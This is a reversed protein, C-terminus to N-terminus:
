QSIACSVLWKGIFAARVELGSVNCDVRARFGEEHNGAWALRVDSFALKERRTPYQAKFVAEKASFALLTGLQADTGLPLGEPAVLREIPLLDSRDVRELDLGIMTISSSAAILGLVVTGKHTLSGLFGAPWERDGGTRRQVQVNEPLGARRLLCRICQEAALDQASTFATARAATSLSNPHPLWRAFSGGASITEPVLRELVQVTAHSADLRMLVELQVLCSRVARGVPVVLARQNPRVPPVVRHLDGDSRARRHDFSKM